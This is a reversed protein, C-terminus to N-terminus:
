NTIRLHGTPMVSLVTQNYIATPQNCLPYVLAQLFIKLYFPSTLAIGSENEPEVTIFVSYDSTLASIVPCGGTAQIFDQGPKNFGNGYPGKCPGAGDLDANYFNFFRGTSYPDPLTNDKVWGQFQWGNGPSLSLGPSFTSNGQIDCFWLGKNCQTNNTTPSNLIYQGSAPYPYGAGLIRKGAEGFAYDHGMWLSGTVSDSSANLDAAILVTGEPNLDKGVTLTSKTAYGLSSTDGTFNFVLTNGLTDVMEGAASINFRGLEYWTRNGSSDLALWLHYYGDVGPLLAKLNTFTFSIQGKPVWQPDQGADDCSIFFMSLYIVTIILLFKYSKMKM